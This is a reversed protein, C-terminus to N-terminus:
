LYLNTERLSDTQNNQQAEHLSLDIDALHPGFIVLFVAQLGLLFDSGEDVCSTSPVTVVLGEVSRRECYSIIAASGGSILFPPSLPPCIVEVERLLDTQERFSQTVLSCSQYMGPEKLEDLVLVRETNVAQLLTKAWGHAREAKVKSQSVAVLVGGDEPFLYLQCGSSKPSHPSLPGQIPVEPLHLSGVHYASDNVKPFCRVFRAAKGELAVFLVKVKLNEPDANLEKLKKISFRIIPPFSPIMHVSESLDQEFGSEDEPFFNRSRPPYFEVANM